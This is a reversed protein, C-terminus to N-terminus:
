IPGPLQCSNFNYRSKAFVLGCFIDRGPKFDKLCKRYSVHQAAAMLCGKLERVAFSM